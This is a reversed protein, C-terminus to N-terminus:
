PMTMTLINRKGRALVMFRIMSPSVRMSAPGMFMLHHGGLSSAFPMEPISRHTRSKFVEKIEYADSRKRSWGKWRCFDDFIWTNGENSEGAGSPLDQGLM